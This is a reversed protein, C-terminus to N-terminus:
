ISEESGSRSERDIEKEAKRKQGKESWDTGERRMTEMKTHSAPRTMLKGM